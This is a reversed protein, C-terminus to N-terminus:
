NSSFSPLFSPSLLSLLQLAFENKKKKKKLQQQSNLPLCSSTLLINISQHRRHHHIPQQQRPTHTHTHTHANVRNNHPRDLLPVESKEATASSSSNNDLPRRLASCLLAFLCFILHIGPGTLAASCVMEEEKKKKKKELNKQLRRRRRRSFFSPFFLLNDTRAHTADNARENGVARSLSHEQEMSNGTLNPRCWWQWRRRLLLLLLLLPAMKM